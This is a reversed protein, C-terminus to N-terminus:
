MACVQLLASVIYLIQQRWETHIDNKQVEEENMQQKIPINQKPKTHKHINKYFSSFFSTRKLFKAKFMCCHQSQENASGNDPMEIKVDNLECPLYKSVIFRSCQKSHHLELEMVCLINKCGDCWGVLQKFADYACVCACSYLANTNMAHVYAFMSRLM